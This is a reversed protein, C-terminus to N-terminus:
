VDSSCYSPTSRYSPPPLSGYRAEMRKTQNELRLAMIEERMRANEAELYDRSVESVPEQADTEREQHFSMRSSGLSFPTLPGGNENPLYKWFARSPASIKFRRRRRLMFLVLGSISLFVLSGLVGGLIAGTRSATKPEEPAATSTPGQAVPASSGTSSPIIGGGFTTDTTNSGDVAFWHSYALAKFLPQTVWAMVIHDEVDTYATHNFSMTVNQDHTFNTVVRNREVDSPDDPLVRTMEGNAWHAGLNFHKPDGSTWRLSIQTSQSVIPTSDPLIIELSLALPFTVAFLGLQFLSLFM